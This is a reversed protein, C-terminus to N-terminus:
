GIVEDRIKIVKQQIAEVTERAIVITSTSNDTTVLVDDVEEITPEANNVEISVQEFITNLESFHTYLNMFDESSDKFFHLLKLISEVVLKQEGIKERLADNDKNLNYVEIAIHMAELWGGSIMLASLGARDQQQFHDNIQNFNQTTILLLSDLDRTESLREITQFDFFQSIRLEDVLEQIAGVYLICQQNEEYLNSFGLDTGYIGLNIARLFATNYKSFDEPNTLYAKDYRAGSTKLLASLEIPAPIQNIIEQIETKSILQPQQIELQDLSDLLAIDQNKKSSNCGFVLIAFFLILYKNM